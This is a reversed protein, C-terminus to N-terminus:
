IWKILIQHVEKLDRMNCASLLRVIERYQARAERQGHSQKWVYVAGYSAARVAQLPPEVLFFYILTGIFGLVVMALSWWGLGLILSLFLSLAPVAVLFALIQFGKIMGAEAPYQPVMGRIEFLLTDPGRLVVLYGSGAAIIVMDPNIRGSYSRPQNDFFTTYGIGEVQRSFGVTLAERIRLQEKYAAPLSVISSM